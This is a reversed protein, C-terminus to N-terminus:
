QNCFSGKDSGPKRWQGGPSHKFSRANRWNGPSSGRFVCFARFRAFFPWKKMNSDTFIKNKQAFKKGTNGPSTACIEM